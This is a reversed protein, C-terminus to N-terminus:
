GGVADVAQMLRDIEETTNYFHIGMHLCGERGNIAIQRQRMAEMLRRMDDPEKAPRGGPPTFLLIGSWEGAGRPSEVRCGRREAAAVAYDTLERIRAEIRAPGIEDIFRLSESLAALGLYNRSGEEFRRAAAVFNCDYPALPDEPDTDQPLSGPGVHMAELQALRERRCFFIGLGQLGLLWKQTGATLFDVQTAAADLRLAGLGQIADVLLLGGHRHAVSALAALDARFGSNYQVFSIALLRTRPTWAAAVMAPTIRRQAQALFRTVVGRQARGLWPLVSSPFEGQAVLIEDGSALPLSEAVWLIGESTNRTFAIEDAHCSLLHAVRRRTEEALEEDDAFAVAIGGNTLRDLRTAVAQASRRPLLGLGNTSLYTLEALAPFESRIEAIEAATFRSPATERGNLRGRRAARAQDM